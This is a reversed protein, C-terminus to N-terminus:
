PVLDEESGRWPAERGGEGGGWRQDEELANGRWGLKSRGGPRKGEVGGKIKRWPTEGGGWRQDEELASGRVKSRGGPRKGEVGGKIKRWPTEGGGWRQTKRWPTEGGGWRQDEELASGRWGVKSRGGPRKGEFEVQTKRWPTEGGGWRQNGGPRKGEMKMEAVSRINENEDKRKGLGFWELSERGMVMVILEMRAKELIEENIEQEQLRM